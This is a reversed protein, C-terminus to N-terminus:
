HEGASWGGSLKQEGDLSVYRGQAWGNVDKSHKDPQESQIKENRFEALAHSYLEDLGEKVICEKGNLWKEVMQQEVQEDPEMEDISFGNLGALSIISWGIIIMGPPRQEGAQNSDLVSIIRSLTSMIVRQDSSSAREIIAIPLHLPFASGLRDGEGDDSATLIDIVAKLRAVGMLMILSRSREYGPLKVKKGGRGVGTCLTLSDSSGRQTVPIGFMLPGALASSIGPIISCEIGARRFALVEEGGRGYVFPDGQKLRIVNKGEDLAAALALSILESQAGEANGPFKKAIVLPTRTPILDLIASPVLKDSLILDTSPSTLLRHALLTLLGPHGPGSGILYIRGKKGTAPRPPPPLSLSHQSYSSAEGVYDADTSADSGDAQGQQAPQQQQPQEQTSQPQPQQQLVELMQKTTMTGLYDIPWYESIQAIWRMRESIGLSSSPQSQSAHQQPVPSNLPTTDHSTDEEGGIIRSSRTRVLKSSLYDGMKHDESHTRTSSTKCIERMFGINEVARGIHRSLCSVIDRKIRGSLRCGKGNTTIAIQLSSNEYSTISPFSFTCYLPEDTINIPIRRQGCLKSLLHSRTLNTSQQQIDQHPTDSHLTNTICMAFINNQGDGDVSDLWTNWGIEDDRDPGDDTRIWGATIGQSVDSSWQLDGESSRILLPIGGSDYVSKARSYCLRGGNGIIVVYKGQPKHALILSTSPPSGMLGSYSSSSSPDM